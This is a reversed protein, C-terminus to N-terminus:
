YRLISIKLKDHGSNAGDPNPVPLVLFSSIPIPFSFRANEKM